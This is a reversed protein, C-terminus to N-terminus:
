QVEREREGLEGSARLGGVSLGSLASAPRAAWQAWAAELGAADYRSPRQRAALSSERWGPAVEHVWREYGRVWAALAPVLHLPAGRLQPQLPGRELRLREGGGEYTVGRSSLSVQAGSDEHVWTASVLGGPPAAVRHLGRLAFLNGGPRTVDRGFAWM